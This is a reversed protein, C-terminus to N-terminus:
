RPTTRAWKKVFTKAEGVTTATQLGPVKNWIRAMLNIPITQFGPVPACINKSEASRTNIMNNRLSFLRVGLPNMLQKSKWTLIAMASTVVENLCRLGAKALVVESRVKDLLKIRAISCACSKISKNIQETITISGMDEPDIRIPITAPAAALIKGMLLGNAFTILLHPPMGFSLRHILAARTQAECALKKLYPSTTFNTDYDVGLITIEPKGIVLCSGIKVEFKKRTSVMLQTKENNLILGTKQCYSIM